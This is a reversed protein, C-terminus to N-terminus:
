ISPPGVQMRIMYQSINDFIKKYEDQSRTSQAIIEKIQGVLVAFVFVGFLWAFLMFVIQANNETNVKPYHKTTSWRNWM